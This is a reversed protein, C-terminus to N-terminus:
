EASIWESSTAQSLNVPKELQLYPTIPKVWVTDIRASQNVICIENLVEITQSPNIQNRYIVETKMRQMSWSQCQYYLYGHFMALPLISFILGLFILLLNQSKKHSSNIQLIFLLYISAATSFILIDTFTYAWCRVSFYIPIQRDAWFYLVFWIIILGCLIMLIKRGIKM